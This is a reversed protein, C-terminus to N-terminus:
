EKHGLMELLNKTSVLAMKEVAEATFAGLHPTLLFNDLKLLKEDEAPPESSFVDQAAGAIKGATLAEYLADEDVLEGRSTNILVASAKMLGLTRSNIMKKTDPTAPLHLSIIDSESLLQDINDTRSIRYQTLFSDDKFWPDYIM